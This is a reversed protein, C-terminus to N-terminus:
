VRADQMFFQFANGIAIKTNRFAFKIADIVCSIPNIGSKLMSFTAKPVDKIVVGLDISRNSLQALENIVSLYQIQAKTSTANEAVMKLGHRKLIEQINDQFTELNAVNCKKGFIFAKIDKAVESILKEKDKLAFKCQSVYYEAVKRENGVFYNSIMRLDDKIQRANRIVCNDTDIFEPILRGKANQTIFFNGTHPDGHMISEAGKKVFLFQEDFAKLLSKPLEKMVKEPEALWPHQAILDAYKKGFQAPHLKYDKLIDILTNMQIGKATDMVMCCGNKSIEQIAVVSYRKAGKALQQSNKMARTFDLEKIWDSHLESNMKRLEKIEEASEGIKPILRDFFSKEEKLAKVSVGHKLMKIVVNQGDPRRALYTAGITGASLEKELVYGSGPFSEKLFQAAEEFTRSFSCNSRTARIADALQPSSAEIQQMLGQESSIIQALKAPGVGGLEIVGRIKDAGSRSGLIEKLVLPNGQLRRNIYEASDNIFKEDSSIKLASAEGSNQVKKLLKTFLNDESSINEMPINKAERAYQLGESINKGLFTKKLGGKFLSTISGKSRIFEAALLGVSLAAIVTAGIALYKTTNDSDQQKENSRTLTDLNAQTDNHNHMDSGDAYNFVSVEKQGSSHQESKTQSHMKVSNSLSVIETGM